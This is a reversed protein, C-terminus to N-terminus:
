NKDTVNGNEDIVAKGNELADNVDDLLGSIQELEDVEFDYESFAWDSDDSHDNGDAEFLGEDNLNFRELRFNGPYDKPTCYKDVPDLISNNIESIDIATATRPILPRLKERIDALLSERYAKKAERYAKRLTDHGAGSVLRLEDATFLYKTGNGYNSRCVYMTQGSRNTEGNGTPMGDPISTEVTMEKMSDPTKFRKGCYAVTDGPKFSTKEM